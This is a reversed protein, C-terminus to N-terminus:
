MRATPRASSVSLLLLPDMVKEEVLAVGRVGGIEGPRASAGQRGVAVPHENAVADGAIAIAAVAQDAAVRQAFALAVLKQLEAALGQALRLSRRKLRM